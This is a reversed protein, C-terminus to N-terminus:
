QTKRKYQQPVSLFTIQPAGKVAYVPNGDQDYQGDARIFSAIMMKLRLVTGDDLTFESWRETSEVTQVEAGEVEVGNPLIMKARKAASDTM